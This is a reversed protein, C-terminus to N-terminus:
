SVEMGSSSSPSSFNNLKQEMQAKLGELAEKTQALERTVRHLEHHLKELDAADATGHHRRHQHEKSATM